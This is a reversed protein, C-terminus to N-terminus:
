RAPRAISAGHRVPMRVREVRPTPDDALLLAAAQRGLDEHPLSISTLAPELMGALPSGDFGIVSVDDPIRWGAAHV